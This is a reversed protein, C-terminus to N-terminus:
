RRGSRRSGSSRRRAAARLEAVVALQEVALRAGVLESLLDAVDGLEEDLDAVRRRLPLEFALDGVVLGAVQQV